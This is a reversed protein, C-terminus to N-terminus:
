KAAPWRSTARAAEVVDPEEIAGPLTCVRERTTFLLPNGDGLDEGLLRLDNQGVLRDGAEVHRIAGQHHVGELADGRVAPSVTM